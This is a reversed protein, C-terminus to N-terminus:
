EENITSCRNGFREICWIYGSEIQTVRKENNRKDIVQVSVLWFSSAENDEKLEVDIYYHSDQKRLHYFQDSTSIIQYTDNELQTITQDISSERSLDYINEMATQAIANGDIINESESNSKSAYTFLALFGLSIITLIVISALIEILTFGKESYFRNYIEM